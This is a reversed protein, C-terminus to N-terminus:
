SLDAITETDSPTQGFTDTGAKKNWVYVTTYGASKGSQETGKERAPCLAGKVWKRWSRMRAEVGKVVDWLSGVCQLRFYLSTYHGM